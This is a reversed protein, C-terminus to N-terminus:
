CTKGHGSADAVSVYRRRAGGRRRWDMRKVCAGSVSSTGDRVGEGSSEAAMRM